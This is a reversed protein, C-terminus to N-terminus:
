WRWRSKFISQLEQICYLQLWYMGVCVDYALGCVYIDTANRARLEDSLTTRTMKKNDWFVSYSDVEPNTGKCIKVGGVIVQPVFGHTFWIYM